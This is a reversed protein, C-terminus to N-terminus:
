GHLGTAIREAEDADLPYPSGYLIPGTVVAPGTVPSSGHEAALRSAAPNPRGSRARGPRDEAHWLTVDDGLRTSRIHESGLLRAVEQVLDMGFVSTTLRQVGDVTVLLLRAEEDREDAMGFDYPLRTVVRRSIRISRPRVKCLSTAGMCMMAQCWGKLVEPIRWPIAPDPGVMCTAYAGPSIGLGLGARRRAGAPARERALAIAAHRRRSESHRARQAPTFTTGPEAPPQEANM